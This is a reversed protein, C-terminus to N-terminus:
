VEHYLILHLPGVSISTCCIFVADKSEGPVTLVFYSLQLLMTSSTPLSHFVTFLTHRFSTFVSRYNHDTSLFFNEDLTMSRHMISYIRYVYVYVISFTDM